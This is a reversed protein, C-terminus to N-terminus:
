ADLDEEEGPFMRQYAEEATVPTPLTFTSPVQPQLKAKFEAVERGSLGYSMLYAEDLYQPVYKRSMIDRLVDMEMRSFTHAELSYDQWAEFALPFAERVIAAMINAYVQIEPQAHSDCRLKLFHFLNHLDIKWYWQTYASLPLGIRSLERAVGHEDLWDYQQFATHAAELYRLTAEQEEACCLKTASSGQNNTQSQLRWAEPQFTVNPLLSYRGSYENVSATRHRIWQRAVFIPMAVHFKLEGMEIPTTHRHRYLYRILGRTKNVARTGQGYSIRAARELEQDTGMYDVLAVFGHQHVPYYLGLQADAAPTGPRM